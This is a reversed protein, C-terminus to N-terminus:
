RTARLMPVLLFFSPFLPGAIVKSAFARCAKIVPKRLLFCSLLFFPAAWTASNSRCSRMLTLHSCRSSTLLVHFSTWHASRRTSLSKPGSPGKLSLFLLSSSSASSFGLFPFFLRFTAAKSFPSTSAIVSPRSVTANSASSSSGKPPQSTVVVTPQPPRASVTCSAAVAAPAYPPAPAPWLESPGRINASRSFLFAPLSKAWGPMVGASCAARIWLLVSFRRFCSAM